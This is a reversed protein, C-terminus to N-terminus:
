SICELRQRDSWSARWAVAAVRSLAQSDKVFVFYHGLEVGAKTREAAEYDNVTIEFPLSM